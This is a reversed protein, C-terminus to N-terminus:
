GKVPRTAAIVKFRSDLHLTEVTRFRAELTDEYPLHRNAVMYLRGSPTLMQSAAGIFARGLDPEAKRGTHFPPNMVVVDAAREPRWRLADAWHFAARPDTLAAQACALAHYDAEVLDVRRVAERRLVAQALYGWGAGLDVVYGGLGKPLHEALLVSAPDPGDASFVGPATFLSDVAKQAPARWDAFAAAGPSEFWFVKGHAKSIVQAVPVRARVARLIAEIGDTKQGDVIVLPAEAARAILDHALEKARPLVVLAAAGAVEGEPAADYGAAEYSEFSSRMRAIVRLGDRPLASLDLAVGPALVTVGGEPWPVQALRAERM